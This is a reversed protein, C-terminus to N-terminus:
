HPPRIDHAAHTSTALGDGSRGGSGLPVGESLSNSAVTLSQSWRRPRAVAAHKRRPVHRSDLSDRLHDIRGLLRFSLRRLARTRQALPHPRTPAQGVATAYKRALRDLQTESVSDSLGQLLQREGLTYEHVVIRLQATPLEIAHGAFRGDGTLMRDVTWLASQIERALRRQATVEVRRDRIKWLERYLVRDAAALHTSLWWVADLLPREGTVLSEGAWCEARATAEKITRPAQDLPACTM